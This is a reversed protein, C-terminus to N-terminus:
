IEIHKTFVIGRAHSIITPPIIKIIELEWGWKDKDKWDWATDPAVRHRSFDRRFETKNKYKFCGTFKIIAIARAKFDGKKGPTEILYMEQNLYKPPIEYTRTEVIKEGSCILSSIPFQINIGPKTTRM